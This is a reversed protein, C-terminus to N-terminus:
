PRRAVQNTGLPSQDPECDMRAWVVKGAPRTQVGWDVSLRAVIGLGRGNLAYASLVPLAVPTTSNADTVTVVVRRGERQLNVTFPSRGHQVANTALESVM